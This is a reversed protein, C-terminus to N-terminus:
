VGRHWSVGIRAHRGPNDVGSAHSRYLRDALNGVGVTLSIEDTLRTGAEVSHVAFGPTGGEQIRPDRLDRSGLRNQPGAWRLTYEAWVRGGPTAWIVKGTGALPPIKSMPEEIGSEPTQKGRTYMLTTRLEIPGSRAVAEGEVGHLRARGVNRGQFVREGNFLTDGRFTGPTRDIFDSITTRYVTVDFSVPATTYRLSVEASLAHEPKADPNPMVIGGPVAGVNTLDYLSPARFSEALRFALRFSSALEAVLGVQGTLDSASGHVRGGFETGVDAENHAYSWRGGLSLTVRRLIQTEASGFFGFRQGNAGDPFRGTPLPGAETDRTLDVISGSTSELTGWSNVHDSFFDTGWTLTVPHNAPYVVGAAVISVGPTFVNDQTFTRIDDPVGLEDHPRRTRGERQISLTATTELRNLFGGYPRYLHRAMFFQRTQPNFVHEADRGLNPARFDVYRDYRPVDSMRFHQVIGTFEHQPIGFYTLNADVGWTDFATPRQPDLGGGPRLDGGHSFTGGVSIAMASGTHGLSGRTRYGENATSGVASFRMSTGASVPHTRTIVNVVGGQADSGYLVSGPGRIIEIKEIIEPDVTALYQGPGDRYTGNNMRVGNVLYLVRNGVLGRLIVAGQGASTQQVQVGPADRLLDPAVRGAAMEAISPEVLAVASPRTIRESAGGRTATVTIEALRIASDQAVEVQLGPRLGLSLLTLTTLSTMAYLLLQNDADQTASWDGDAHTAKTTPQQPGMSPHLM